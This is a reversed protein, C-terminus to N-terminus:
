VTHLQPVYARSRSRVLSLRCRCNNGGTPSKSNIAFFIEPGSGRAFFSIRMMTIFSWDVFFVLAIGVDIVVAVCTAFTNTGRDNSREMGYVHDDALPYRCETRSYTKRSM